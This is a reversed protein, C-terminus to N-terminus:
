FLDDWEKYVIGHFKNACELSCFKNGDKDTYYEYDERLEENCRLCYGRIKSEPANPCKPHHGGVWQCCECMTIWENMIAGGNLVEIVMKLAVM